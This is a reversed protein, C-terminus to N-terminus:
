VCFWPNADRSEHKCHQFKDLGKTHIKRELAANEAPLGFADWGTTHLVNFGQRFKYRPIVDGITYNRVHGMHMQGSPYLWMELVYYKPLSYDDKTKFAQIFEWAAQWRNEIECFNLKNNKAKMLTANM